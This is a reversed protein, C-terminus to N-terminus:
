EGPSQHFVDTRSKRLSVRSQINEALESTKYDSVSRVIGSASPAAFAAEFNFVKAPTTQKKASTEPQSKIVVVEELKTQPPPSKVTETGSGKPSTAFNPSQSPRRATTSSPVDDGLYIGQETATTPASRRCVNM